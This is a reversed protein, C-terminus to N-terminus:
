NLLVKCMNEYCTKPQTWIYMVSHFQRADTPCCQRATVPITKCRHVQADDRSRPNTGMSELRSFRDALILKGLKRCLGPVGISSTIPCVRNQQMVLCPIWDYSLRHWDSVVKTKWIQQGVVMALERWTSTRALPCTVTYQCALARWNERLFESAVLAQFISHTTQLALQSTSQSFQDAALLILTPHLRTPPPSDILQELNKVTKFFLGGQPFRSHLICMIM